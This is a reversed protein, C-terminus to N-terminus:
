AGDVGLEASTAALEFENTMTGASKGDLLVSAAFDAAIRLKVDLLPAAVRDERHAAPAVAPIVFAAIGIASVARM